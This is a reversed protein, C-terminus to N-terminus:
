GETGSSNKVKFDYFFLSAAFARRETICEAVTRLGGGRGAEAACHGCTAASESESAGAPGAPSLLKLVASRRRAARSVRPPASGAAQGPGGPGGVEPRASAATVSPAARSKPHCCRRPPGPVAPRRGAAPQGSRGGLRLM